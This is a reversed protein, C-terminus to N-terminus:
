QALTDTDTYAIGRFAMYLKLSDANWQSFEPEVKTKALKKKQNISLAM